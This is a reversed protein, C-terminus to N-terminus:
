VLLQVAEYRLDDILFRSCSVHGYVCIFLGIKEDCCKTCEPDDCAECGQRVYMM